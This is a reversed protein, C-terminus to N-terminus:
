KPGTQDTRSHIAAWVQARVWRLGFGGKTYWMGRVCYLHPRMARAPKM